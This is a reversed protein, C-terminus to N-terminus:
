AVPRRESLAWQARHSTTVSFLAAVRDNLVMAAATQAIRDTITPLGLVRVGGSPKPIQVRRVPSPQYANALLSEHLQRLRHDARPRFAEVTVGDVGGARGGRQVRYWAERLVAEDAMQEVFLSRRGATAQLVSLAKM